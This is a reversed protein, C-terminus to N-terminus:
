ISIGGTGPAGDIGGGTGPAGDIGGGTGPAGDIFSQLMKLIMHDIGEKTSTTLAPRTHRSKTVM